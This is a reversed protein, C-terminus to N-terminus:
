RRQLLSQLTSGSYAPAGQYQQILEPRLARMWQNYESESLQGQKYRTTIDNEVSELTEKKNAIAKQAAVLNDANFNYYQGKSEFGPYAQQLIPAVYGTEKYIAMADDIQQSTSYNSGGGGSSYPQNAQRKLVAIQWQRYEPDNELSNKQLGFQEQQLGFNKGWQEDGVADRGVGYNFSRDANSQGLQTQWKQLALQTAFKWRDQDQASLADARNQSKEQLNGALSAVQANNTMDINNLNGAQTNLLNEEGIIRAGGMSQGRANLYQPLNRKETAYQQNVRARALEALPNLQAGAQAYADETSLASYSRPRYSSTNFGGGNTKKKKPTTPLPNQSSGIGSYGSLSKNIDDQNMSDWGAM